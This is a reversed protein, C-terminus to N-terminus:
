SCHLVIGEEMINRFTGSLKVLIIQADSIVQLYRFETMYGNYDIWAPLVGRMIASTELQMPPYLPWIVSNVIQLHYTISTTQLSDPVKLLIHSPLAYNKCQQFGYVINPQLLAPSSFKQEYETALLSM